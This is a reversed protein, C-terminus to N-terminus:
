AAIALFKIVMYCMGFEVNPIGAAWLRCLQTLQVFVVKVPQGTVHAGGQISCDLM